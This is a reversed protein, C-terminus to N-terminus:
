VRDWLVINQDIWRTVLEKQPLYGFRDVAKDATSPLLEKAMLEYWTTSAPSVPEHESKYVMANIWPSEPEKMFMGDKCDFGASALQYILNCINFAHAQNSYCNTELRNLEIVPTQPVSLILVGSPVLWENFKRLTHAPNEAYQLTNHCWILDVPRSLKHTDMDAEVVFLNKPKVHIGNVEKTNKDLAYCTYNHPEPVDDRTEVTAWWMIDEGSGCGVDMVRSISDMFDDHDYLLNLIQKSHEHSEKASKFLDM